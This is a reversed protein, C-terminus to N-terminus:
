RAYAAARQQVVWEVVAGSVCGPDDCAENEVLPGNAILRQTGARDITVACTLDGLDIFGLVQDPILEICIAGPGVQRDVLAVLGATCLHEVIRETFSANVTM